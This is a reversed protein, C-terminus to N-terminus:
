NWLSQDCLTPNRYLNEDETEEYLIAGYFYRTVISQLESLSKLVVIM